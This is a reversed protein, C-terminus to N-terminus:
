AAVAREMAKTVARRLEDYGAWPDPRGMRRVAEAIGFANAAELNGLEKWSVPMAVPANKRARTSWPAIATAGRENRMWDLFIRGTRHKKAMTAIFVDPHEAAIAQAFGRAFAKVRPWEASRRLPAVVHVGKGGTVLPLTTLGLSELRDRVVMAALRVVEFSLSEDPDLDFVIRDPKELSDIRSGWVHFELTGMQVGAVLGAVDDIYLYDVSEGSSERIPVPKLQEPFGDSAHKQFFCKEGAGKPCRVLSLPRKAVYPLMRAAVADYYRVLDAKTVGQQEFLVREPHTLRVGHMEGPLAADASKPEEMTVETPRKDERLGLFSGHRIHGGETLESYDIEAVLRPSVWVARRASPGPFSAFPSSQRELKKLRKALEHMTAESWGTGVKGRYVLRDGEYVGLLLSSFPRGRKDSPKYGGIVFEQRNRCKIKLWSRTRRSVYPADGRKAVIGERGNRCMEEFVRPGHGRVHESFHVPGGAPLTALLEKLAQKRELLPLRRLDKGDRELSALETEQRV